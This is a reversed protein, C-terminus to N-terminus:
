AYYIPVGGSIGALVKKAQKGAEKEAQADEKAKLLLADCQTALEDLMNVTDIIENYREHEKLSEAQINCISVAQKVRWLTSASIRQDNIGEEAYRVHEMLFDLIFEAKKDEYHTFGEVNTLVPIIKVRKDVDKFGDAKMKAKMEELERITTDLMEGNIWWASELHKTALLKFKLSFLLQNRYKRALENKKDLGEKEEQTILKGNHYFHDGVKDIKTESNMDYEVLYITEGHLGLEELASEDIVLKDVM